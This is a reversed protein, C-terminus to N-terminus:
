FKIPRGLFGRSLTASFYGDPEKEAKPLIEYSYNALIDLVEHLTELEAENKQMQSTDAATMSALMSELVPDDGKRKLRQLTKNRQTIRRAVTKQLETGENRCQNALARVAALPDNHDLDDGEGKDLDRIVQALLSGLVALARARKPNEPLRGTEGTEDYLKRRGVDMLLDHAAQIIQM